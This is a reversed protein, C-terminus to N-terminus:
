ATDGETNLQILLALLHHPLDRPLEYVARLEHGVDVVLASLPPTGRDNEAREALDLWKQAMAILSARVPLETAQKARVLCEAARRRHGRSRDPVM